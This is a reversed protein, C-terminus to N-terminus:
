CRRPLARSPARPPAAPKGNRHPGTKPRDTENLAAEWLVISPHNRDRRALDRINQM